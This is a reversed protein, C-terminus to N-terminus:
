VYTGGSRSHRDIASLVKIFRGTVNGPWNSLDVDSASLEQIHWESKDKWAWVQLAYFM